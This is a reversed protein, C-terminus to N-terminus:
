DQGPNHQPPVQQIMINFQMLISELNEQIQCNNTNNKELLFLPLSAYSVTATILSVATRPIQPSYFYKNVFAIHFHKIIAQM